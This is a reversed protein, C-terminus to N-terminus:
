LLGGKKYTLKTYIEEALDCAGGSYLINKNKGNGLGVTLNHVSYGNLYHKNFLSLGKILFRESLLM